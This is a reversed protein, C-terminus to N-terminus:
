DVGHGHHMQHFGPLQIQVSWNGITQGFELRQIWKVGVRDRKPMQQAVTGTQDSFRRGPVIEIRSRRTLSFGHGAQVPQREDVRGPGLGLIGVDARAHGGSDELLAATLFKRTQDM